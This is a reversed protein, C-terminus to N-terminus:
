IEEATDDDPFDLQKLGPEVPMAKTQGKQSPPRYSRNTNIYEANTDRQEFRLEGNVSTHYVVTAIVAAITPLLLLSGLCTKMGGIRCAGGAFDLTFQAFALIDPRNRIRRIIRVGESPHTEIDLHKIDEKREKIFYSFFLGFLQRVQWGVDGAARKSPM